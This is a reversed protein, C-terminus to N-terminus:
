SLPDTDFQQLFERLDRGYAASVDHRRAVMAGNGLDEGFRTRSPDAGDPRAWAAACFRASSATAARSPQGPLSQIQQATPWSTSPGPEESSYRRGRTARPAARSSDAIRAS